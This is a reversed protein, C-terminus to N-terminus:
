GHAKGTMTSKPRVLVRKVERLCSNCANGRKLKEELTVM